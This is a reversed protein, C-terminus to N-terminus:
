WLNKTLLIGPSHNPVSGKAILFHCPVQIRSTSGENEGEGPILLCDPWHGTNQQLGMTLRHAFQDGKIKNTDCATPDSNGSKSIKPSSLHSAKEEGQEKDNTCRPACWDLVQSAWWAFKLVVSYRVGGCHLCKLTRSRSVDPKIARTAEKGGVAKRHLRRFKYKAESRWDSTNTKLKKIRLTLLRLSFNLLYSLVECGDLNALLHESKVVTVLVLDRDSDEDNIISSNSKVLQVDVVSLFHLQGKKVVGEVVRTRIGDEGEDNVVVQGDVRM